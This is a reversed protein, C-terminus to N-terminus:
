IERYICLHIHVCTYSCKCKYPLKGCYHRGLTSRLINYEKNNPGRWFPVGFKPFEWISM